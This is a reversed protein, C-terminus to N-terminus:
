VGGGRALRATLGDGGRTDNLSVRNYPRANSLQKEGCDRPSNWQEDVASAAGTRRRRRQTDHSDASATFLLHAVDVAYGHDMPLPRPPLRPHFHSLATSRVTNTRRWKIRSPLVHEQVASPVQSSRHIWSVRSASAKTSEYLLVHIRLTYCYIRIPSSACSRCNERKAKESNLSNQIRSKGYVAMAFNKLCITIKFHCDRAFITLSITNM